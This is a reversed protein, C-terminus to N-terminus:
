IKIKSCLPLSCSKISVSCKIHYKAVFFSVRDAWFECSCWNALNMAWHPFIVEVSDVKASKEKQQCKQHGSLQQAWMRQQQHWLVSETKVHWSSSFRNCHGFSKVGTLYIWKVGASQDTARFDLLSPMFCSPLSFCATDKLLFDETLPYLWEM